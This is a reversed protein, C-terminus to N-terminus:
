KSQKSDGSCLLQSLQWRAPHSGKPSNLGRLWPFPSAQALSPGSKPIKGAELLLLQRLDPPAPLGQRPGPFPRGTAPLDWALPFIPRIPAVFWSGSQGPLGRLGCGTHSARKGLRRRLHQPRGGAEPAIISGEGGM